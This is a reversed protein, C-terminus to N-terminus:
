VRSCHAAIRRLLEVLRWMGPSVFPKGSTMLGVAIAREPDAFCIVNSMGVHGFARKTGLGYPSVVSSGLMFGTSYDIPLGLTLDLELYSQEMLARKITREEFIRVGNLSGGALLLQFFRSAENATGIINGSPIIATNFRPDNSVEVAKAFPLQLARKFMGAFPPPIPPGTYMNLAVEHLRGPAIGYNFTDFGLPSLIHQKLYARITKGTVRRVVEDIVFGGTLAHYAVLRGPRHSTHTSCILEIIRSPNSLLDLNVEDGPISPIGARHTLIHRLTIRHKRGAAFEPIYEAVADDLHLLGRQELHHAVMATVAKSVSFVNFRTDPTALVPPVDPADGPLFGRTHGIARDFVVQGYRRICLAIAPYLGSKYLGLFGRHIADINSHSMDVDHPAVERDAARTTVEEPPYVEIRRILM